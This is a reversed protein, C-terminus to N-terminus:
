AWGWHVDGSVEGGGFEGVAFGVELDVPEGVVGEFLGVLEEGVEAFGLYAGVKAGMDGFAECGGKTLLGVDVGGGWAVRKGTFGASGEGVEEGGGGNVDLGVAAKGVGFHGGSPNRKFLDIAFIELGASAWSEVEDAFDEIDIAADAAVVELPGPGCAM